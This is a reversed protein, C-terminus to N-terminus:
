VMGFVSGRGGVRLLRGRTNDLGWAGSNGMESLRMRELM